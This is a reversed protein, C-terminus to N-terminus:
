APVGRVAPAEAERAPPREKPFRVEQGTAPAITAADKVALGVLLAAAPTLHLLLRDLTARVYRPFEEPSTPAVGYALLVALLNGLIFLTLFLFPSTWLRKGALIFALFVAPWLFGFYYPHFLAGALHPIAGWFQHPYFGLIHDRGIEINHAAMFLRWPLYGAALGMLPWILQRLRRRLLPPRLWLLTLLGALIITAALPPGEFKCWALGAMFCALLPLSGPPAEEALWLYCLGAAGLAFYALALDAYAMSLHEIFIVGNLALVATVGLARRRGLGSRLLLAYLLTLLVAGWLPFLGKVLQDDAGGLCLYLFSMLLPVLNPYYNHADMSSLDVARLLYFVRAKYGWTEVADWTCMPYFMALSAAYLFLAGLGVLLM